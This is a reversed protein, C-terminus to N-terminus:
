GVGSAPTIPAQTDPWPQSPLPSYDMPAGRVRGVGLCHEILSEQFLYSLHNTFM